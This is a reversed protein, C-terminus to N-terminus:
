AERNMLTGDAKLEMQVPSVPLYRSSREETTVFFSHLMLVVSRPVPLHLETASLERDGSVDQM